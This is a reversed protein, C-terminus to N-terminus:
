PVRGSVRLGGEVVPESAKGEVVEEHMCIHGYPKRGAEQVPVGSDTPLCEGRPVGGPQGGHSSSSPARLGDPTPLLRPSASVRGPVGTKGM